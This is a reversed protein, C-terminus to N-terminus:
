VLTRDGEGAGNDSCGGQEGGQRGSEDRPQLRSKTGLSLVGLGFFIVIAGALWIPVREGLPFSGSGLRAGIAGACAIFAGAVWYFVRPLRPRRGVKATV